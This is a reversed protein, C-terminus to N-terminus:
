RNTLRLEIRRNKQLSAADKGMSVPYSAGFGSPVLRRREVGDRILERAVAEARLLSLQMNNSFGTTGAKVKKNDTHGDIRIIWNLNSPIKQSLAKIAQSIKGLQKKGESSLKYEGSAFLIDSDLVFRDGEPEIGTMDGLAIKIERYFDSQYSNLKNLEAVKDALAMNLRESMQVYQAEFNTAKAEAADLAAILRNLEDAMKEELDSRDTEFQAKARELEEIKLRDTQSQNQAQELQVKTKELSETVAKMEGIQEEYAIMLEEISTDAALLENDLVDIEERLAEKEDQLIIKSNELNELEGKAMVLLRKAEQEDASMQSITQSQEENVRRLETVTKIGSNKNFVSTTTWLFVFVILLFILIIVLNSFLDVFGPWTNTKERFRFKLM